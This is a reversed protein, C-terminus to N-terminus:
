KNVFLYLVFTAIHLFAKRNLDIIQDNSEGSIHISEIQKDKYPM